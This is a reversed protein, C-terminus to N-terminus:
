QLGNQEALQGAGNLPSHMDAKHVAEIMLDWFRSVDMSQM